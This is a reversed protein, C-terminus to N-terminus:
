LVDNDLRIYTMLKVHHVACLHLPIKIYLTASFFYAVVFFDFFRILDYYFRDTLNCTNTVYAYM